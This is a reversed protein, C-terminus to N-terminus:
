EYDFECYGVENHVEWYEDEDILDKNNEAFDAMQRLFAPMDAEDCLVSISVLKKYM